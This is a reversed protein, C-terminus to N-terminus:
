LPLNADGGSPLIRLVRDDAPVPKGHGDRNSTTAWIAGDPAATVTRIRGYRNAAVPQERGTLATGAKAPAVLGVIKKGTLEGVFLVSRLTACGAPSASKTAWAKVPDAAGAKGAKGMVAPWGYDAGPRVVDLEDTGAGIDTAYLVRHTDWCLGTVDHFGTAYVTSGATPNGGAARGFVDLRLIKGALSARDAALARNGADGTGVYLNGDPGFAIRGGNGTIGKPIGTFIAKPTGGLAFRIIRNDTKTTVYAFILGDEAYTPSLVLGLLGGDGTGDIGRVSMVPTAPALKPKVRLIRGTPRETVLADGSPLVALGWPVDLHEAVVNPDKAKGPTGSPPTDTGPPGPQAPQGPQPLRPDIAPPMAPLQQAWTREVHPKSSDKKSCGSVAFGAALTAMCAAAVRQRRPRASTPVAM